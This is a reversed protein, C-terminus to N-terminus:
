PRLHDAWTEEDTVEREVDLWHPVVVPPGEGGDIEAVLSGDVFEDVVVGTDGVWHRTKTLRRGPLVSMLQWEDDTLYISTCAIRRVGDIRIKHGLKRVVTRDDDVVERLRLHGGDIYRDHITASRTIGAPRTRLLFRRESEVRTYKLPYTSADM